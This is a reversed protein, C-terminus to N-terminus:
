AEAVKGEDPNEESPIFGKSDSEVSVPEIAVNDVVTADAAHAPEYDGRKANTEEVSYDSQSEDSNDVEEVEPEFTGEEPAHPQPLEHPNTSM